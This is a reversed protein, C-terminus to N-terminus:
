AVVGRKMNLAREFNNAMEIYNDRQTKATVSRHTIAYRKLWMEFENDKEKRMAYAVIALFSIENKENILNHDKPILRKKTFYNIDDYYEDLDNETIETSVYKHLFEIPELEDDLSPTEENKVEEPLEVEDIDEIHLYEKMLKELMDMKTIIVKRDKTSKQKGYEEFSMDDYEEFEKDKLTSMFEKLFGDFKEDDLNYTLFEHYTAFWLLSDKSNFLKGTTGQDIFKNLRDLENEFEDFEEKNANENLYINMAKGRKWDDLHYILMITENVVRDIVGKKKETSTYNGCDFFFRHNQSLKKVYGAIKYMYLIGKQNANMKACRNCRAMHYAIEEDTCDLHKVVDFSYDDFRDQLEEPLDSWGKGRMDFEVVQGDKQYYTYPMMLNKGM